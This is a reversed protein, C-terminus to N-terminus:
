DHDDDPDAEIRCGYRVFAELTEAAGLNLEGYDVVVPSRIVGIESDQMVKILRTGRWLEGYPGLHHENGDVLALITLHASSGVTELLDLCHLVEPGLDNDGNLYFLMVTKPPREGHTQPAAHGCGTPLLVSLLLLAVVINVPVSVLKSRSPPM